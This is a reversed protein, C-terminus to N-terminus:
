QGPYVIVRDHVVVVLDDVDDGTVDGALVERPEGGRDPEGSFRKGQFVQFSMAKVLEGDPFTTLVEINAKRMDVVAVDRVGDHNFDGIVSDALWADKIETQYAHQEVLTAAREGPLLLAVTQADALVLGHTQGSEAGLRIVDMATLDFARAPMTLSVGYTEDERRNLVLLESATKDFMALTPAKEPRPLMALGTLSANASDPNYQDVVTWQADRVVLARAVNGGALLVEPVNDGTPQFSGNDQQLFTLLPSFRVFLLLDNRGDQNVDVFRLGSPDDRLASIPVVQEKGEPDRVRLEAQREVRTVYAVHRASDGARM